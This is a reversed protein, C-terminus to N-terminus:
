FYIDLPFVENDEIYNGVQWCISGDATVKTAMKDIVGELWKIYEDLSRKKEKEYEKGINYPPSTVILSFYNDPLSDLASLVDDNLLTIQNHEEFVGYKNM